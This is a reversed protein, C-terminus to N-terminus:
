DELIEHPITGGTSELATRGQTVEELVERLAGLRSASPAIAISAHLDREDLRKPIRSALGVLTPLEVGDSQSLYVPHM